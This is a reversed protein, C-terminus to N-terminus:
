RAHEVVGVVGEVFVVEVFGVARFLDYRVVGLSLWVWILLVFQPPRPHRLVRPDILLPIKITLEPPDLIEINSIRLIILIQM